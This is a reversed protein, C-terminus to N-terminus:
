TTAEMRIMVRIPVSTSFRIPSSASKTGHRCETPAGSCAPSRSTGQGQLWVLNM